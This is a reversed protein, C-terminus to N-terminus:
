LKDVTDTDTVCNNNIESGLDEIHKRLSKEEEEKLRKRKGAYRIIERRIVMLHKKFSNTRFRSNYKKSLYGTYTREIM